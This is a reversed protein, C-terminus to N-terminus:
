GWTTSVPGYERRRMWEIQAVHHENVCHMVELPSLKPFTAKLAAPFLDPPYSYGTRQTWTVARALGSM